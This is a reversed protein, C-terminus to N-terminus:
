ELLRVENKVDSCRTFPCEAGRLAPLIRPALGATVQSAPGPAASVLAALATRGGVGTRLSPVGWAGRRHLLSVLLPFFLAPPLSRGWSSCRGM